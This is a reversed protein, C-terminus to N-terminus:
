MVLSVRNTFLAILSDLDPTNGIAKEFSNSDASIANLAVDLVKTFTVTATELTNTGKKVGKKLHHEIRMVAEYIIPKRVMTKTQPNGPVTPTEFTYKSELLYLRRSVDQGFVHKELMDDPISKLDNETTYIRFEFVSLGSSHSPTGPKVSKETDVVVALADQSFLHNAALSFLVLISVIKVIM